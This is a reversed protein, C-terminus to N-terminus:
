RYLDIVTSGVSIGFEGYIDQGLLGVSGGVIVPVNRKVLGGVEVEVFGVPLRVQRGDAVTVFVEDVYTVGIASAMAPTILTATAGTDFLMPFPQSGGAATLNVSVVPTGGRRDVIAIRAVRGRTDNDAALSEGGGSGGPNQAQQQAQALNQQYETVKQQAVAYNPDSEPVQGMYRAAQQWRSAALQWDQPSQASQGIAVASQALNVGEQFVNLQPTSPSAAADPLATNSGDSTEPSGQVAALTDEAPASEPNATPSPGCGWLSGAIAVVVM